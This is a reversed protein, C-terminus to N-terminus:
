KRQAGEDATRNPQQKMAPLRRRINGVFSSFQLQSASQQIRDFFVISHSLQKFRLHNRRQIDEYTLYVEPKKNIPQIQSLFSTTNVDQSPQKITSIIISSM